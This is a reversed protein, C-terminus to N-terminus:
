RGVMQLYLGRRWPSLDLIERESWGYATALIHVEQLARIAWDQLETWLFSVIDFTSPCEQLCVPCSAQVQLDACPDVEAMTTTLALILDEPLGHVSVAEGNHQAELVCHELLRREATGLDSDAACAVLDSGAPVRFRIRYGERELLLEAPSPEFPKFQRTDMSWELREGCNPCSAVCLMSRGFLRERLALLLGDRQGVPLDGPAPAASAVELLLIAREPHTAHQGREWAHLLESATLMSM